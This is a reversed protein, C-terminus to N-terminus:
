QDQHIRSHIIESGKLPQQGGNASTEKMCSQGAVQEWRVATDLMVEVAPIAEIVMRLLVAATVEPTAPTGVKVQKALTVVMARFVPNAVRWISLHKRCIHSRKRVRLSLWIEAKEAMERLAVAGVMVAMVALAAM